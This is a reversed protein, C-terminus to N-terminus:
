QVHASHRAHGGRDVQPVFHHVRQEQDDCRPDSYAAPNLSCPLFLACVRACVKALVAASEEISIVATQVNSGLTRLLEALIRDPGKLQAVVPDDKSLYSRSLMWGARKAGLSKLKKVADQVAPKFPGLM